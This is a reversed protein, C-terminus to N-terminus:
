NPGIKGKIRDSNSESLKFLASGITANVKLINIKFKDLKNQKILIM